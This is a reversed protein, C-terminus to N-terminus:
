GNPKKTINGENGYKAEFNNLKGQMRNNTPRREM